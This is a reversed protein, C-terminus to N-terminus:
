EEQQATSFDDAQYQVFFAENAKLTVNLTDSEHMLVKNGSSVTWKLWSGPKPNEAEFELTGGVGAPVDITWTHSGAAVKEQSNLARSTTGSNRDSSEFDARVIAPDSSEVSITLTTGGGEWLKAPVRDSVAPTSGGGFLKDRLTWWGLVLALGLASSLVRKMVPNM